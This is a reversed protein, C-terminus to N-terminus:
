EEEHHFTNPYDCEKCRVLLKFEKNGTNELIRAQPRDIREVDFRPSGMRQPVIAMWEIEGNCGECLTKGQIKM